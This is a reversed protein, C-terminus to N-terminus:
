TSALDYGLNELTRAMDEDTSTEPECVPVGPVIIQPEDAM